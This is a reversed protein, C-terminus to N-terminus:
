ASKQRFRSPWWASSCAGLVHAFHIPFIQWAISALHDRPIMSPDTGCHFQCRL